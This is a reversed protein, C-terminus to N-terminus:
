PALEQPLEVETPERAALVFKNARELPAELELLDLTEPDVVVM